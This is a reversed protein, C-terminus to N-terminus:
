LVGAAELLAKGEEEPGIHIIEGEDRGTAICAIARHDEWGDLLRDRYVWIDAVYFTEGKTVDDPVRRRRGQTHNHQKMSAAFEQEDASLSATDLDSYLERTKDLLEKKLARLREHQEATKDAVADLERISDELEYLPQEFELQQM